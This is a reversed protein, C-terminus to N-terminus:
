TIYEPFKSAFPLEKSTKISYSALYRMIEFSLKNMIQKDEMLNELKNEPIELYKELGLKVKSKITM